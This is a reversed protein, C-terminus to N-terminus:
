LFFKDFLSFLLNSSKPSQQDYKQSILIIFANRQIITPLAIKKGEECMDECLSWIDGVCNDGVRRVNKIITFLQIVERWKVIFRADGENRDERKSSIIEKGSKANVVITQAGSYRLNGNGELELSVSSESQFPKTSSSLRQSSSSTNNTQQKPSKTSKSFQKESQTRRMLLSPSRSQVRGEHDPLGTDELSLSLPTKGRVMTTTNLQGNVTNMFSTQITKPRTEILERGELEACEVLQDRQARITAHKRLTRRKYNPIPNQITTDRNYFVSSSKHNNSPSSGTPYQTNEPWLLPTVLKPIGVEM